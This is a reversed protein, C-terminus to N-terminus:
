NHLVSYINYQSHLKKIKCCKCMHIYKHVKMKTYTHLICICTSMRLKGIATGNTTIVTAILDLSSTNNLLLTFMASGQDETIYVSSSNFCIM